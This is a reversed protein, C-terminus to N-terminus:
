PYVPSPPPRAFRYIYTRLMVLTNQQTHVNAIFIPIALAEPLGCIIETQAYFAILTSGFCNSQMWFWKSGNSIKLVLIKFMKLLVAFCFYPFCKWNSILRHVHITFRSNFKSRAFLHKYISWLLLESEEDMAEQKSYIQSCIQFYKIVIETRIIM